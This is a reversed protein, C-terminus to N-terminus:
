NSGHSIINLFRNNKTALNQKLMVRYIKHAAKRFCCAIDLYTEDGERRYLIIFKDHCDLLDVEPSTSFFKSERMLVIKKSAYALLFRYFKQEGMSIYRPVFELKLLNHDGM